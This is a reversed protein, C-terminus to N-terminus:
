LIYQKTPKYSSVNSHCQWINSHIIKTLENFIM